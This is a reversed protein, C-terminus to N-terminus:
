YFVEVSFYDNFDPMVIKVDNGYTFDIAMKSKLSAKLDGDYITADIDYSINKISKDNFTIGARVYKFDKLAANIAVTYASNIEAIQSSTLGETSSNEIYTTCYDVIKEKTIDISLAYNGNNYSKCNMFAKLSNLMQPNETMQTKVSNYLTAFMNEDLVLSSSSLPFCYKGEKVYMTSFMELFKFFDPDSLDVYLNLNNLYSKYSMDYKMNELRSDSTMNTKMDFKVHLDNIFKIENASNSTLGSMKYEYDFDSINIDLYNNESVMMQPVPLSSDNGEVYNPLNLNFSLNANNIKVGIADLKDMSTMTSELQKTASEFTINKGGAPIVNNGRETTACGILLAGSFIIFIKKSKM